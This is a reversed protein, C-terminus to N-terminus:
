NKKKFNIGNHQEEQLSGMSTKVVGIWDERCQATEKLQGYIKPQRDEDDSSRTDIDKTKSTNGKRGDKWRNCKRLLTM